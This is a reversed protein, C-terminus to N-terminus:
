SLDRARGWAVVLAAVSAAVIALLVLVRGGTATLWSWGTAVFVLGAVGAYLLARLRPELADLTLRNNRYVWVGGLAFVGLFAMSLARSAVEATGGGERTFAVAAALALVILVNRVTTSM